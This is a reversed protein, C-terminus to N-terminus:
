GIDNILALMNTQIDANRSILVKDAYCVENGQWDSICCGIGKLVPVLGLFDYPRFRCEFVADIYGKALLTYVYCDYYYIVHRVARTLKAFKAREIATMVDASSTAVVCQVLPKSCRPQLPLRKFEANFGRYYTTGEIAVLREALMPHDVAGIVISNHRAIGLITGWIPSGSAFAKTGDIPDVFWTNAAARASLGLEEGHINVNPAMLNLADRISIEIASDYASLPDFKHESKSVCDLIKCQNCTKVCAGAVDLLANILKFYFKQTLTM